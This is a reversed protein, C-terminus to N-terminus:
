PANLTRRWGDQELVSEWSLTGVSRGRRLLLAELQDGHSLVGKM